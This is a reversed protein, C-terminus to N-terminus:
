GRRALKLHRRLSKPKKAVARSAVGIARVKGGKVRYVFKRGRPGAKKVWLKSTLKDAGARRLKSVRAGVAVGAARQGPVSSLILGLRDRKTFVVALDNRDGAARGNGAATCWRWVRSRKVPQGATELAQRPTQNLRLRAGFGRRRLKLDNWGGCDVEHIGVTREWMQLYAEAGRGMDNVIEDGALMRLDEIWDPYLGYHAVGDTNIDFVRQGSVQQDLTVNGDFSQFPYTVPNPVNAGRPLGQSGFGNMDAGYGLGYYQRGSYADRMDQWKEVFGESSGAYPMIMGGLRWIRPYANPTSWSHSSVVGPYDEAEVFDLAQNRANVSLHDPDFIMRRDIIGQITHEGLESLGYANCHPGQGYIPLLGGPLLTDFANGVIMDENHEVATPSHDHNEPDHCAQLDWHRGTSAFNGSNTVTGTTGSDGAVGGLANDFKNIIELQRVGQEYLHDLSADIDGADCLPQGNLIRCGFPESVEMGLVVALKGRNIVERAEFPDDVIRFWGKGPGGNQADIYDQMAYIDDIQKDVSTMEDCSNHKIPYLECLVRNEVMLNVYLRLGGRWAREIWKYYSQEHTLSEPHPWDRFTPWGVPDHCRAPNGFLVNELVAGCGNPEHDPCDVLAYPAGFRHWPKGCHAGGGLFEFAMGHMHGELFGSVEGYLPSGTSPGGTANVEVEPYTECGATEHFTFLESASASEAGVTALAGDGGVSLRQGDLNTITFADGVEEVVWDSADSPEAAAETGAGGSALFDRAPGYFLYRGLTTAQLRFPEAGGPDGASAAYSGGTKAAFRGLAESRLALCRNVISYRDLKAAQDNPKAPKEPRNPKASAASAAIALVAVLAAAGGTRGSARVRM